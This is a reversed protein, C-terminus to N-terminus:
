PLMLGRGLALMRSVNNKWDVAGHFSLANSPRSTRGTAPRQARALGVLRLALRHVGVHLAHDVLLAPMPMGTNMLPMSACVECASPVAASGLRHCSPNCSRVSRRAPHSVCRCCGAGSGDPYRGGIIPHSPRIRRRVPSLRNSSSVTDMTPTRRCRVAAPRRPASRARVSRSVPHAPPVACSAADRDALGGVAVEGPQEAQQRAIGAPRQDVAHRDGVKNPPRRPLESNSAASVASTVTGSAKSIPM